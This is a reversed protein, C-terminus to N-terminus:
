VKQLQISQTKIVRGKSDFVVAELQNMGVKLKDYAINIQYPAATIVAIKENGLKYVVQSIYPGYSKVWTALTIDSYVKVIGTVKKSQM